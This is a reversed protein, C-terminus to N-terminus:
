KLLAKIQGISTNSIVAPPPYVQWGGRGEEMDDYFYNYKQNGYIHVSDIMWEEVDDQEPCELRFKIKISDAGAAWESIDIMEDGEYWNHKYEKIVHNWHAGGDTSGLVYGYTHNYQANYPSYNTWYSLIVNTYLDANLTPSILEDISNVEPPVFYRRAVNDGGYVYKHWDNNDNYIPVQSWGMPLWENFETVELLDTGRYEVEILVDDIFWGDDVNSDIDVNFDFRIRLNTHGKYPTLDETRLRWGGTYQPSNYEHIPTLGQQDSQIYVRCWDGGDTDNSTDMYEYYKLKISYAGEDLNFRPSLLYTDYYYIYDDGFKTADEPGCWWSYTGGHAYYDVRHFRNIRDDPSSLSEEDSTLLNTTNNAYTASIISIMMFVCITIPVRRM